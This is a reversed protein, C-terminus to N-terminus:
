IKREEISKEREAQSINVYLPLIESYPTTEGAEFKQYGCFAFASARQLNMHFPATKVDSSMFERYKDVGNGLLLVRESLNAIELALDAMAIHRPPIMEIVRGEEFRYLGNYVNQNRADIMPCIIGNYGYFNCALGMLTDVCVCPRDLAQAMAKVVAIGIRLGTFSGPGICIVFLDVDTIDADSAKLVEDIMPMLKESHTLKNNVTKECILWTDTSYSVAAVETSTDIALINM